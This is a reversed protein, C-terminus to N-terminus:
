HSFEGKLSVQTPLEAASFLKMFNEFVIHKYFRYSPQPSINWINNQEYGFASLIDNGNKPQKLKMWPTSILHTFSFLCELYSIIEDEARQWKGISQNSISSNPKSEWTAHATNTPKVSQAKQLTDEGSEKQGLFSFITNLTEKPMFVLEEYKITLVRSHEEFGLITATDHMWRRVANEPQAGRSVLSLAVDRGDRIVHIYKGEPFLSLFEQICYCNSPTKEVWITKSSTSLISDRVKFVFSKFDDNNDLMGHIKESSLGFRQSNNLFTLDKMSRSYTSCGLLHSNRLTSTAVGRSLFGDLRVRFEEPEMAYLLKKNFLRMEPGCYINEHTNLLHQLLTTGSSGCGGIIIPSLTESTM